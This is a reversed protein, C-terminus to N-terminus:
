CREALRRATQPASRWAPERAAAGNFYQRPRAHTTYYRGTAADLSLGIIPRRNRGMVYAPRGRGRPM